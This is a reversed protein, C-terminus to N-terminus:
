LPGAGVDEFVQVCDALMWRQNELNNSDADGAVSVRAYGHPKGSM